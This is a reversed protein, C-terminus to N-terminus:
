FRGYRHDGVQAHPQAALLWFVRFAHARRAGTSAPQHALCSLRAVLGSHRLDYATPSAKETKSVAPHRLCTVVFTTGSSDSRELSLSGGHAEAISKAISLGLGAGAGMGGVGAAKSEVKEVRFFREFVRAQSDYSWPNSAPLMNEAMLMPTPATVMVQEHQEM